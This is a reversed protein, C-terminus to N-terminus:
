CRELRTGEDARLGLRCLFQLEQQRRRVLDAIVLEVETFLEAVEGLLAQLDLDSGHAAAGEHHLGHRDPGDLRPDPRRVRDDESVALARRVGGHVLVVGRVDEVDQHEIVARDLLDRIERALGDPQGIDDAALRQEEAELQGLDAQRGLLVHLHLRQAIVM